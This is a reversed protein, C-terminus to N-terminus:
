RLTELFGPRRMYLWGPYYEKVNNKRATAIIHRKYRNFPPVSSIVNAVCYGIYKKPNGGWRYPNFNCCTVRVNKFGIGKLLDDIEHPLYERNHREGFMTDNYPFYVPKVLLLKLLHILNSANDTTLLLVGDPKLVRAIEKLAFSSGLIFHEIVELLLVIDLSNDEFPLADKEINYGNLFPIDNKKDRMITTVTHCEKTAIRGDLFFGGNVSTYTMQINNKLVSAFIPTAAIDLVKPNQGRERSIDDLLRYTKYYREAHFQLNFALEPNHEIVAGQEVHRTQFLQYRFQKFSLPKAM